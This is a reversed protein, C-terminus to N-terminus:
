HSLAIPPAGQTTMHLIISVNGMEHSFGKFAVGWVCSSLSAIGGLQGPDKAPLALHFFTGAEPLSFPFM